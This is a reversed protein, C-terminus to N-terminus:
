VADINRIFLGWFVHGPVELARLLIGQICFGVLKGDVGHKTAAAVAPCDSSGSCLIRCVSGGVGSIQAGIWM